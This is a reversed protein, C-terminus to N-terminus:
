LKRTDGSDDPEEDTNEPETSSEFDAMQKEAVQIIESM